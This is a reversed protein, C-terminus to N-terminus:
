KYQATLTSFWDKCTTWKDSHPHMTLSAYGGRPFTFIQIRLHKDEICQSSDTVTSAGYLRMIWLVAVIIYIYQVKRGPLPFYQSLFKIQSTSLASTNLFVCSVSGQLLRCCQSCITLLSPSPNHSSPHATCLGSCSQAAWPHILCHRSDGGTCGANIGGYGQTPFCSMLSLFIVM